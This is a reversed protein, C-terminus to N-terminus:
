DSDAMTKKAVKVVNEATIGYKEFCVKAPASAGFTSVGIFVGKDGIYKRWGQEVGAEIGVRASVNPPIVSDKYKQSQKEFLEWCPMSVVQATINEKALTEIRAKEDEEAKKAEMDALIKASTKEVIENEKIVKAHCTPCYGDHKEADEAKVEIGCLKCKNM